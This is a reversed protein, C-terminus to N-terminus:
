DFMIQIGAQLNDDMYARFRNPVIALHGAEHLLASAACAPDVFLCGASIRVMNVFGKAGPEVVVPLGITLLFDIVRQLEQTERAADNPM